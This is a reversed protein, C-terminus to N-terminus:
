SAEHIRKRGQTAFIVDASVSTSRPSSRNFYEYFKISHFSYNVWNLQINKMDFSCSASLSICSTPAPCASNFRSADPRRGLGWAGDWSNAIRAYCISGGSDASHATGQSPTPNQRTCVAPYMASHPRSQPAQSHQVSEASLDTSATSATRQRARTRGKSYFGM